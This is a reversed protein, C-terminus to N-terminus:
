EILDRQVGNGKRLQKLSELMHEKNKPSSFLYSTEKMSSYEEFSIMVVNQGNDKHMIVEESNICVNNFVADLNKSVEAFSMVQM